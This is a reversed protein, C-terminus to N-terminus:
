KESAALMREVVALEAEWAPVKSLTARLEEARKKLAQVADGASGVTPDKVIREYGGLQGQYRAAAASTQDYLSM